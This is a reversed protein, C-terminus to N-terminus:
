EPPLNELLMFDVTHRYGVRPYIANTVPNGTDTFLMCRPAGKNLLDQSLEAVLRSAYGNGRHIDPTYVAAITSGFGAVRTIGAMSVPKGDVEWLARRRESIVKGLRQREDERLTPSRAEILDCDIAFRVGWEVLLEGDSEDAFRMTGRIERDPMRVETLEFAHLRKVKPAPSSPRKSFEEMLEAMTGEPGVVSRPVGHERVWNSFAFRTIEPPMSSFVARRPLTQVIAGEIKGDRLIAAFALEEGPAPTDDRQEILGLLFHNPMLDHILTNWIAARFPAVSSFPQYILEMSM